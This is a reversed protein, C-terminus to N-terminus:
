GELRLAPRECLPALQAVAQQWEASAHLAGWDYQRRGRLRMLRVASAPNSYGDLAELVAPVADPANCVLVLDCGADLARRAREAHSGGVAAGAMSVDDSIIAGTFGLEGRLQTRMWWESLSAPQPDLQPFSVHAVMISALGAAILSRYPVLDDLLDGYDRTDVATHTHSDARVGAHTPFHKATVAMGAEHAGSMFRKALRAVVDADEHLARDGIVDALKLDRDVVPAFSWDVGVARLEAAMAWGFTRAAALAADPDRDHLYGLARMPPLRLFPERFRQVRGGEQDVAVLLAPDRVAHIDAVLRELQERSEFNRTFLIVGGVLPSELWTREDPAISAGRLDIMLPGLSM